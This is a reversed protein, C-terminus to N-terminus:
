VLGLGLGLGLGLWLSAVPSLSKPLLMACSWAFRMNQQRGGFLPAVGNVNKMTGTLDHM